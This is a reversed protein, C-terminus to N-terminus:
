ASASRARPRPDGGPLRLDGREPGRGLRPDGASDVDELWRYPDAVVTGHYDDKQDVTATQPYTLKQMDVPERTLRPAADAANQQPGRCGGLLGCVVTGGIVVLNLTRQMAMM